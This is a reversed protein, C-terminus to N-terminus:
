SPKVTLSNKLDEAFYGIKNLDYEILTGKKGAGLLSQAVRRCAKVINGLNFDNHVLARIVDGTECELTEGKKNTIVLSYYSSPGGDSVVPNNPLVSPPDLPDDDPLAAHEYNVPCDTAHPGDLPSGCGVCNTRRAPWIPSDMCFECPESSAYAHRGCHKCTYYDTM